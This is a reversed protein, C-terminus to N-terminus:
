KPPMMTTDFVFMDPSYESAVWLETEAPNLAIGHNEQGGGGGKGNIAVHAVVMGTAVSMVEFGFLDYVNSYVYTDTSDVVNHIPATGFTLNRVIQDTSTDVLPMNPSSRTELYAYKGSVGIDTQHAMKTIMLQKNLNGTAADLIYE